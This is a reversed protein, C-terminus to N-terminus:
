GTSEKKTLTVVSEIHWTHPFMDVPQVYGIDYMDALARLDRALAAPNCSVYILRNSGLQRLTTVLRPHLGARPPDLIVIDPAIAGFTLTSLAEVEACEFSANAIGNAAANRRAYDIAQGVADIGVVRRAQRALYLGISVM